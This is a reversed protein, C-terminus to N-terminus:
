CSPSSLMARSPQQWASDIFGPTLTSGAANAAHGSTLLGSRVIAETRNRAGLARYAQGLHTKVTGVGLALDRAIQKVSRGTALLRIVESQRATLGAICATRDDTGTIQGRRPVNQGLATVDVIAISVGIVENAADRVPQYSAVLVHEDGAGNPGQRRSRFGSITEGALARRLYPEIQHYLSPVMEAVTRGFHEVVTADHMEALRRNLAVYRLNTDVLGLGVPGDDYLARLQSVCVSPLVELRHAMDVAIAPMPQTPHWPEGGDALRAAVADAEIPRGFLWGQGVDCGMSILLDAQAQGEVGEATVPMGLSHGLGIVSAVVKRSETRALMSRVFGGDVKLRDFQLALLQHLNAYGTGFDDLALSAGFGRLERAIDRALEPNEILGAETVEFVLRRCPLGSAEVAAHLQEPLLRDRLQVPSINISLKLQDPWAAAAATAAEVLRRTLGGILGTQEAIPIFEAPHVIGRLPHHWRALVEFGTLRGTRLEVMPQFYPVIEGDAIARCLDASYEASMPHCAALPGIFGTVANKGWAATGPVALSDAPVARLSGGSRGIAVAPLSSM